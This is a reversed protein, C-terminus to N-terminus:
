LVGDEWLARFKKQLVLLAAAEALAREKRILERKLKENEDKLQLHEVFWARSDIRSTFWVEHM